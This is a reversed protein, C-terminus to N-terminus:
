HGAGSTYATWGYAKSEEPLYKMALIQDVAQEQTILHGEGYNTFAVWVTFIIPYITFLGMLVLGIVMWRLPYAKRFLLIFNVLLALVFFAGAFPYFGLSILKYIFWGAAADGVFLLALSIFKSVLPKPSSSKPKSTDQPIMSTM